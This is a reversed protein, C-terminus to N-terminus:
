DGANPVSAQLAAPADSQPRLARVKAPDTLAEALVGGFAKARRLLDDRWAIVQSPQLGYSLAIAEITKEGRLVELVVKAKLAPEKNLTEVRSQYANQREKSSHAVDFPVYHYWTRDDQRLKKFVRIEDLPQAILEYARNQTVFNCVAQISELWTDDFMVWGGVRILQDSLYFDVLVDDFRHNGDIYIFDFQERERILRSLGHISHEPVWEFRVASNLRAVQALGIGHWLTKEFPDVAVHMAGERERLADLIWVTSYGCAFGIELSRRVQNERILRHLLSGQEISIKPMGDISVPADAETGRLERSEHMDRVVELATPSLEACSSRIKESVDNM